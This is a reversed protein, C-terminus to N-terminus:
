ACLKDGLVCKKIDQRYTKIFQSEWRTMRADKGEAKETALRKRIDRVTKGHVGILKIGRIYFKFLQIGQHVLRRVTGVDEPPPALIGHQTAKQM